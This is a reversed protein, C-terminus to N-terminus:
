SIVNCRQDVHCGGAVPGPDGEGEERLEGGREGEGVDAGPDDRADARQVRDRGRDHFAHGLGREGETAVRGRVRRRQAGRGHAQQVLGVEQDPDAGAELGGDGACDAREPGLDVHQRQQGRGEGERVASGAVGGALGSLRIVPVVVRLAAVEGEVGMGPQIGLDGRADRSADGLAELVDVGLVRGGVPLVQLAERDAHSGQVAGQAPPQRTHAVHGVDDMVVGIAAELSAVAEATEARHPQRGLVGGAGAM